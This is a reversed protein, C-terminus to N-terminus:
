SGLGSRTSLRRIGVTGKSQSQTRELSSFLAMMSIDLEAPYLAVNAEPLVNENTLLKSHKSMAGRIDSLIERAQKDPWSTM